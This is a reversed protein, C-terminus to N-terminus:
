FVWKVTEFYEDDKKELLTNSTFAGNGQHSYKTVKTAMAYYGNKKKIFQIQQNIEGNRSSISIQIIRNEEKSIDIIPMSTSSFLLEHTILSYHYEAISEIHHSENPTNTEKTKILRMVKISVDTLPFKGVLHLRLGINKSIGEAHRAGIEYYAYSDGGTILDVMKTSLEKNEQSLAAIEKNRENILKEQKATDIGAWFAGAITFLGGILLFITPGNVYNFM